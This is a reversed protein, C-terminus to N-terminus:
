PVREGATIGSEEPRRLMAYIAVVTLAYCSSMVNGQLPAESIGYIMFGGVFAVGTVALAKTQGESQVAKRLFIVGPVLFLMLLAMLGLAGRGALAEFYESHAHGRSVTLVQPIVIGEEVLDANLAERQNYNLGYVPSQKFASIAAKWLELRLGASTYAAEQNASEYNVIDSILVHFRQEVQPIAVYSAVPLSVTAALCALLLKGGIEKRYIFLMIALLPPVAIYAGKTGTLLMAILASVFGVLSFARKLNNDFFWIGPLCLFALACALYGFNISYLFGDVRSMGLYFYQYLALLLAGVAGVNAGGFLWGAKPPTNLLLLLVPIALLYRLTLDLYRGRFGDSVFPPLVTLFIFLLTVILLKDTFTLEPKNKVRFMFLVGVLLLIAFAAVSVGPTALLLALSLFVM